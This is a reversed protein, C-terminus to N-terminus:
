WRSAAEPSGMGIATASVAPQAYTTDAPRGTVISVPAVALRHLQQWDPREAEFWVDDIGQALEPEFPDLLQDTRREGLSKAAREVPPQVRSQPM